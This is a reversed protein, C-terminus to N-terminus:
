ICYLFVVRARRLACIFELYTMLKFKSCRNKTLSFKFIKVTLTTKTTNKLMKPLFIITAKLEVFFIAVTTKLGVTEVVLIWSDSDVTYALCYVFNFFFKKTEYQRLQKCHQHHGSFRHQRLMWNWSNTFKQPKMKRRLKLISHIISRVLSPM